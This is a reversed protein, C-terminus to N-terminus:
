RSVNEALSEDPDEVAAADEALLAERKAEFAGSIHLPVDSIHQGRWVHGSNAPQLSSGTVRQSGLPIEPYM